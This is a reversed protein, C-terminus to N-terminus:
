VLELLCPKEHELSFNLLSIPNLKEIYEFMESELNFEVLEVNKIVEYERKTKFPIFYKDWNKKGSMLLNDWQKDTLFEPEDIFYIEKYFEKKTKMKKIM